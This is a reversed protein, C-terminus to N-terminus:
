WAIEENTKESFYYWGIMHLGRVIDASLGTTRADNMNEDLRLILNFSIRFRIKRVINCLMLVWLFQM